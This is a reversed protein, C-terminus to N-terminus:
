DNSVALEDETPRDVFAENEIASQNRFAVTFLGIGTLVVIAIGAYVAFSSTVLGDAVVFFAIGVFLGVWGVIGASFECDGTSFSPNYTTGSVM